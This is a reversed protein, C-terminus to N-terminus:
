LRHVLEVLVRVCLALPMGIALIVIPLMFVFLLALAADGVLGGTQRLTLAM